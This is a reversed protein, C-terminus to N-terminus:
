LGESDGAGGILKIRLDSHRAAPRVSLSAGHAMTNGPSQESHVCVQARKELGFTKQRAIGAHALAFLVALRACAFTELVAFPLRDFFHSVGSSQRRPKKSQCQTRFCRQFICVLCTAM